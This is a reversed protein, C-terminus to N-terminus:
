TLQPNNRTSSCTHHVKKSQSPLRISVPAPQAKPLPDKTPKMPRRPKQAQSSSINTKPIGPPPMTDAQEAVEEVRGDSAKAPAVPHQAKEEKTIRSVKQSAAKIREQERIKALQEERLRQEKAEKEKKKEERESSSRTKRGENAKSPSGNLQATVSPEEVTIPQGIHDISPSRAAKKSRNTSPPLTEMKAQASVGASSAFIGKASKLVSYLKAKSASLPGDPHRKSAPSGAPTTSEVFGPAISLDPYSISGMTKQSVDVATTPRKPSMGNVTSTGFLKYASDQTKAPSTGPREVTKSTTAQYQSFEGITEKGSIKEMVDASISKALQPRRSAKPHKQPDIPAIWDDDDDEDIQMNGDEVPAFSANQGTTTESKAHQSLVSQNATALSPISKSVRPEKSQGLMTIREHLRQTASESHQKTSESNQNNSGSGAIEDVDMGDDAGYRTTTQANQNDGVSRAGNWNGIHSSPRVGTIRHQEFHSARNGVSRKALPERAPLSAFTLSSKRLLSKESSSAESPSHADDVDMQDDAQELDPIRATEQTQHANKQDSKENETSMDAAAIARAPEPGNETVQPTVKDIEMKENDEEDGSDTTKDESRLNETSVPKSGLAEKASVFSGETTRREEAHEDSHWQPTSHHLPPSSVTIKSELYGGPMANSTRDLEVEDEVM